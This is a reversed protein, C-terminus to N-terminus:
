TQKNKRMRWYLKTGIIGVILFPVSSMCIYSWFYADKLRVAALPDDSEPRANKCNPCANARVGLVLVSLLILSQITRKMRRELKRNVEAFQCGTHMSDRTVHM